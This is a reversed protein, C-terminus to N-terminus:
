RYLATNNSGDTYYTKRHILTGILLAIKLFLKPENTSSKHMIIYGM